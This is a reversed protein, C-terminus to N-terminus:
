TSEEEYESLRTAASSFDMANIKERLWAVLSANEKYDASEMEDMVEDIGKMDYAQFSKRLRALLVPNPRELMPKPNRTDLEELWIQIDAALNGAAKLLADNKALIGALNGAKAELELELAAARLKEAGIGSSIGKLGHVNVIYDTLTDESVTRLREITKYANPVFSRLVALYIDAEGNYLALGTETDIGPIKIDMKKDEMKKPQEPAVNALSDPKGPTKDELEMRNHEKDRIFKNLSDNLQRIDIPKSIYGDFGSAFFTEQQGVIANATLAFVPHTYGLERIKQTAEIGDMKPMMHDM